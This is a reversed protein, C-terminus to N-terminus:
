WREEVIETGFIARFDSFMVYITTDFDTEIEYVVHNDKWVGLQEACEDELAGVLNRPLSFLRGGVMASRYEYVGKCKMRPM